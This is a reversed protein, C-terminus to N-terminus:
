TMGLVVVGVVCSGNRLHSKGEWSEPTPSGVKDLYEVWGTYVDQGKDNEM